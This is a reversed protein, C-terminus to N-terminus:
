LPCWEISVFSCLAMLAYLMLLVFNVVHCGACCFEALESRRGNLCRHLSRLCRWMVSSRGLTMEITVVGHAFLNLLIAQLVASRIGICVVGARCGSVGRCRLLRSRRRWRFCAMLAEHESIRYREAVKLLIRRCSHEFSSLRKLSVFAENHLLPRSGSRMRRKGDGRM